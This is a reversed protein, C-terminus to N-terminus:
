SQLVMSYRLGRGPNNGKATVSSYLRLTGLHEVLTVSGEGIELPALAAFRGAALVALQGGERDIHLTVADVDGRGILNRCWAVTDASAAELEAPKCRLVTMAYSNHSLTFATKGSSTLVAAPPGFVVTPHASMPELVQLHEFFAPQKLAAGIDDASRWRLYEAVVGTPDVFFSASLFGPLYKIRAETESVNLLLLGREESAHPRMVVIGAYIPEMAIQVTDERM